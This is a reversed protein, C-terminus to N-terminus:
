LIHLAAAFPTRAFVSDRLKPLLTKTMKIDIIVNEDLKDNRGSPSIVCDRLKPVCISDGIKTSNRTHNRERLKPISIVLNHNHNLFHILIFFSIAVFDKDFNLVKVFIFVCCFKCHLGM